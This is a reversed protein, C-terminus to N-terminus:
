CAGAAAAAGGGVASVTGYGIAGAVTGAGPLVSGATGGAAAGGIGGVIAGGLTGVTCRFWGRQDFVSPDNDALVESTVLLNGEDDTTYNYRTTVGDERSEIPLTEITTGASDVIKKVGFSDIFQAGTLNVRASNPSQREFEFTPTTDQATAAVTNTANTTNEAASATAVPAILAAGIATSVLMRRLAHEVNM